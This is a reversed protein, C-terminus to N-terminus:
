LLKAIVGLLQGTLKTLDNCAILQPYIEKIIEYCKYSGEDDLSVAIIRTGRKIIKQVANATDKISVPPYYSDYVHVPVGDSLVIIVKTKTDTNQNIYKEAWFLALGDRNDGDAKIQMLNYKEEERANFGVMVNVDIEPYDFSARHEVVAHPIGQKKLVEHLIVASNVASNRRKGFMSGSGDILLLVSIDAVDIGETNKYWYRKQPDGLRKSTIGSGFLCKEERFSRSSGLLQAFRGNYSNINIRYKNYINQYAKRLDLNIKPHKENIKINKHIVSCDFDGGTAIHTFGSYLIIGLADDKEKAFKELAAMLLEIMRADPKRINGDKDTFLRVTVTQTRGKHESTGITSADPSHTKTGGIYKKLREDDLDCDTDPILPLIINYIQRAYEYRKDPSDAFSGDLFLQKTQETYEAIEFPPSNLKVFPYLLFTAMYDLYMRLTEIKQTLEPNEATNISTSELTRQATGKSSRTLFLRSVRGFRLYFEINDYVSCGVAEIYADEIINEIMAMTKRKIKTDCIMDNTARPPFDSYLIHLCEHITQARTIIRLANWKDSLVRTPLRMYKTTQSLAIDDDFLEDSAPDVVINRGDTFAENENIFFLRVQSDEALTQAYNEELMRNYDCQFQRLIEESQKKVSEGGRSERM